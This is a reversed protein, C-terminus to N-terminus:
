KAAKPAKARKPVPGGTAVDLSRLDATTEEVRLVGDFLVGDQGPVKAAGSRIAEIAQEAVRRKAGSPDEGEHVDERFTRDGLEHFESSSVKVKVTSVVIPKDM